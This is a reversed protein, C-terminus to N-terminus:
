NDARSALKGQINKTLAQISQNDKQCEEILWKVIEKVDLMRELTEKAKLKDLWITGTDILQQVIYVACGYCVFAFCDIYLIDIMMDFRCTFLHFICSYLM